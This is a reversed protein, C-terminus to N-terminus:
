PEQGHPGTPASEPTATDDRLGTRHEAQKNHDPNDETVPEPALPKHAVEEASEETQPLQTSGETEQADGAPPQIEQETNCEM